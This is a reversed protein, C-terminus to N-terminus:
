WTNDFAHLITNGAVIRAFRKPQAHVAGFGIPGGWDQAFMTIRSLGLAEVFRAMRQAQLALTCSFPDTIKDSRGFGINDVAIARHGREVLTPIVKRYLFSWTPQGHLLLVPDANRPGEDVYAMRLPGVEDDVIEAYHPEFLFDPLENFCSDPTRVVLDMLLGRDAHIKRSAM